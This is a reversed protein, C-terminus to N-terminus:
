YLPYNQLQKKILTTSPFVEPVPDGVQPNSSIGSRFKLEVLIPVALLPIPICKLKRGLM